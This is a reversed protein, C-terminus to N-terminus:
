AKRVMDETVTESPLDMATNVITAVVQNLQKGFNSKIHSKLGKIFATRTATKAGQKRPGDAPGHVAFTAAEQLMQLTEVLGFETDVAELKASHQHLRVVTDGYQHMAADNQLHRLESLLRAMGENADHEVPKLKGLAGLLRETMLSIEQMAKRQKAITLRSTKSEAYLVTPHLRVYEILDVLKDPSTAAKGLAQWAAHMDEQTTLHLICNKQEESLAGSDLKAQCHVAVNQPLWKPFKQM